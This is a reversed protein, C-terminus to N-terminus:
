LRPFNIKDPIILVQGYSKQLQLYMVQAEIMNRFDGARLKYYPQQYILYVPAEPFEIKFKTKIANAQKRDSGSFIQIRYGDMSSINKNIEINYQILSDLEPNGVIKVESKQAIAPICFSFFAFLIFIYVKLNM